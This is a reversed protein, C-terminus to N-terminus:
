AARDRLVPTAAIAISSARHQMSMIAAALTLDDPYTIKLNTPNGTVLRPTAGIAEVAQAEDTYHVSASHALASRLVDFRFMQPTQASWLGERPETGASRGEADARKLTGV